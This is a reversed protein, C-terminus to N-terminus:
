QRIHLAWMGTYSAWWQSHDGDYSDRGVVLLPEKQYSTVCSPRDASRKRERAWTCFCCFTKRYSVCWYLPKVDEYQQTGTTCFQQSRIERRLTGWPSYLHAHPAIGLARRPHLNARTARDLSYEKCMELQQVQPPLCQLLRLFTETMVMIKFGHEYCTRTNTAYQIAHVWLVTHVNELHASVEWTKHKGLCLPQSCTWQM